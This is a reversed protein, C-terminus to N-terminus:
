IKGPRGFKSLQLIQCAALQFAAAKWFKGIIGIKPLQAALIEAIRGL